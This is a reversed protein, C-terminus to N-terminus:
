AVVVSHTLAINEKGSEGNVASLLEKSPRRVAGNYGRNKLFLTHTEAMLMRIQDIASVQFATVLHNEM